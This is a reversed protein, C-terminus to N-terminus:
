SAVSSISYNKGGLNLTWGAPLENLSFTFVFCNGSTELVSWIWWAEGEMRMLIYLSFIEWIEGGRGSGGWAWCALLFLPLPMRLQRSSVSWHAAQFPVPLEGTHPANVSVTHGLNGVRRATLWTWPPRPSATRQTIDTRELYGGLGWRKVLNIKPPPIQVKTEQPIGIQSSCVHATDRWLFLRGWLVLCPSFLWFNLSPTESIKFNYKWHRPAFSTFKYRM